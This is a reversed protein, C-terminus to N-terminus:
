GSLLPLLAARVADSLDPRALAFAVNARLLGIKDGCDYTTGQYEPAHVNPTPLLRPMADPLRSRRRPGRM